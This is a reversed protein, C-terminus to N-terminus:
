TTAKSSIIAEQGGGSIINIEGLYTTENASLSCVMLTTAVVFSLKKTM